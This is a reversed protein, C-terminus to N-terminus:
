RVSAADSLAAVKKFERYTLKIGDRLTTTAQWGLSSIKSLDLIKRPTGEPKTEDFKLLGGFGVTHAVLEALERITLDQGTGVNIVPATTMNGTLKSFAAEDLNLLYLCADALDDSYLFERKATGTGWLAVEKCGSVAAEHMRRILAPIVHSLELNYNDGPGYVNSPMVALYRTGYQRNYAGCMEIGAIKAVAYPQNTAELPGSLLYEEKLPQDADRPYICSSGLFLLRKVGYRHACDIINTEIALNNYIFEAPYTSNALIGGVKAAALIVFQPRQTEFLTSVATRNTLDLEAHTRLLLNNHGAATLARTVASGVLGRHGAVYIKDSLNVREKKLTWDLSWPCCWCCSTPM